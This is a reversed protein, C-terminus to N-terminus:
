MRSASRKSGAQGRALGVRAAAEVETTLVQLLSAGLRVHQWYLPVDLWRGPALDVLRGAALHGAVMGIPNMGWGLGALVADAFGQTTPVFHAPGFLDAGAAELAWLAQLRDARSFRLVPAAAVAAGTVGDPFYRQAFGPTATALYRLSGIAVIRCGQVPEPNATVAALVEGSRLHEATQEEGDVLLDLLTDTKQAFAALAPLFWTGLSDANVAVRVTAQRGVHAGARV